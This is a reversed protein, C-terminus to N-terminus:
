KMMEALMTEYELIENMIKGAYQPVSYSDKLERELHDIYDKIEEVTM